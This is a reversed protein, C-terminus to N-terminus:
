GRSREIVDSRPNGHDGIGYAHRPSSQDFLNDVLPKYKVTDCGTILVCKGRMDLNDTVTKRMYSYGLYGAVMLILYLYVELLIHYLLILNLTVFALTLVDQKAFM